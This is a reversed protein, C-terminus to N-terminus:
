DAKDNSVPLVVSFAQASKLIEEVDELSYQDLSDLVICVDSALRRITDTITFKLVGISKRISDNIDFINMSLNKSKPDETVSVDLNKSRLYNTIEFNLEITALDSPVIIEKSVLLSDRKGGPDKSRTQIDRIWEKGIGFSYIISDLDHLILDKFNVNSMAPQTAETKSQSGSFFYIYLLAAIIISLVGILIIKVPKTNM